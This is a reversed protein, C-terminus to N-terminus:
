FLLTFNIVDSCNFVFSVAYNLVKLGRFFTAMRAGM